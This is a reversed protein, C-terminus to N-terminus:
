SSLSNLPTIKTQLSLHQDIMESLDEQLAKTMEGPKGDGVMRGDVQVVPLINKTTSTIFVERADYLEDLTVAREAVPFRTRALQLVQKRIIGKLLNNVPTVLAGDQTVIFINARPCESIINDHQYLVDDAQNESIFNRLWIAMLYDITKVQAFQRQHHYTVLRTGAKAAERDIQFQQQTIILNPEAISFGDPSYGGTLTIRIGSSPLQNKDILAYLLEKLEERSHKVKLRMQGASNYFRDLHDDLFVPRGDAVKFFDFIGYGRQISLDNILVTADAAPIIKDNLVVFANSM